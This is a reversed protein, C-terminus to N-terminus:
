YTFRSIIIINFKKYAEYFLFYLASKFYKRGAETDPYSIEGFNPDFLKIRKKGTTLSVSHGSGGGRISLQYGFNSDIHKMLTEIREEIDEIPSLEIKSIFNINGQVKILLKIADATSVYEIQKPATIKKSNSVASTGKQAMAQSNAQEAAIKRARSVEGMQEQYNMIGLTLRHCEASDLYQKFTSWDHGKVLYAASLGLCVGQLGYLNKNIGPLRFSGIWAGKLNRPNDGVWHNKRMYANQDFTSYQGQTQSALLALKNEIPM